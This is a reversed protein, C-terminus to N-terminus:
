GTRSTLPFQILPRRHSRAKDPVIWSRNFILFLATHFNACVADTEFVSATGKIILDGGGTASSRDRQQRRRGARSSGGGPAGLSVPLYPLGDQRVIGARGGHRPHLRRDPGRRRPGRHRGRVVLILIQRRSLLHGRGFRVGGRHGGGSSCGGRRDGRNRHRGGSAFQEKIIQTARKLSQGLNLDELMMAPLVFYTATTWVAALIGALLSGLLNQRGRRGGGLLNELLKVLTSAAALTLINVFERRVAAWAQDMRGDGETLYDYVLRVTMGSFIYAVGYELFFIIPGFILFVWPLYNRIGPLFALGVGAISGALSVIAGLILAYISPKVLDPDKVAMQFAQGLFGFGRRISDMM